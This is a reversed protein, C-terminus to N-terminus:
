LAAYEDDEPNSPYSAKIVVTADAPLDSLKITSGEREFSTSEVGNVMVLWKAQEPNDFNTTFEQTLLLYKFSIDIHSLDEINCSLTVKKDEISYDSEACESMDGNTNVLSIKLDVFSPVFPLDYTLTDGSGSLRYKVKIVQGDSLSETALVFTQNELTIAIPSGTLEDWAKLDSIGSGNVETTITNVIEGVYPVEYSLEIAEGDLPTTDFVVVGNTLTFTAAQGGVKATVSGEKFAEGIAFNTELAPTSARYEVKVDANDAPEQSFVIKTGVISYDNQGLVMVDGNELTVSVSTILGPVMELDIENFKDTNGYQYNAKVSANPSPTNIFTIIKGALTYDVGQVLPLYPDSESARSTVVLTGDAPTNALEFTSKLQNKMDQSITQFTMDYNADCISGAYGMTDTVLSNYVVAERAASPCNTTPIHFIGYVRADDGLTRTTQSIESSMLNKLDQPDNDAAGGCDGNSCNDEDSVILVALNSATRIWPDSACDLGKVAKYVGQENGSGNTGLAEIHSQFDQTNNENVLSFQNCADSADTSVVRIQWSAGSVQSILDPLKEKIKSHEAGMSGSNDVVVLIDIIGLDSQTFVEEAPQGSTGQKQQKVHTNREVQNFTKTQATYGSDRTVTHAFEVYEQDFTLSAEQYPASQFSMEVETMSGGDTSGNDGPTSPISQSPGIVIPNDGDNNGGDTADEDPKGALSDGSDTSGGEGPQGRNADADLPGQPTKDSPTTGGSFQTKSGCSILLFVGILSLLERKLFM